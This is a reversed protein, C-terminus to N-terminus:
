PASTWNWTLIDAYERSAGTAATFGVFPNGSLGLLSGLNVPASVNVTPSNDLFVSLTTGDYTITATHPSGDAFPYEVPTALSANSNHASSNAGTGASQIGIHASAPDGIGSNQYTDFEIAISKPIGTYGIYEGPGGTGRTGTGDPASQIVFAFGDALTEGPSVPTFQFTFSTSFGTSVPQSTSLWASTTQGGNSTLRLKPGGLIAAPGNLVLDTAFNVSASIIDATTTVSTDSLAYNGADTGAISIGNVTVTKGTGVNPDSFAANAYSDTFVDGAFRDDSLTVTAATTGDYVKNVGAATVTLPKTTINATTVATANASYNGSEPGAIAIGSAIVGKSTGVVKDAFSATTYSDTFNDGAVRDDSLIVAAASTTDYM